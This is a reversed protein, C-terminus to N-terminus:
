KSMVQVQLSAVTTGLFNKGRCSYQGGHSINVKTITLRPGQFWVPTIWQIEAAPNANVPCRLIAHAGAVISM